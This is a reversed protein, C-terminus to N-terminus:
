NQVLTKSLIDEPPFIQGKIWIQSQAEMAAMLFHQLDTKWDEPM